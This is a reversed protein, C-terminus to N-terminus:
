GVSGPPTSGDRMAGAPGGSERLFAPPTGCLRWGADDLREVLGADQLAGLGSTVSPRQAGVLQALERHTLPLPLLLGDGSVRGWREALLWLVGLLRDEMRSRHAISQMALVRAVRRESRRGLTLAMTPWRVTAALVASGLWALRVPALARWSVARAVFTVADEGLPLLVDGAGLLEASPRGAVTMERLLLGDLVLAGYHEGDHIPSWRGLPLHEVAAVAAARAVARDADGLGTGLDPDEDLLNVLPALVASLSHRRPGLAASPREIAGQRTTRSVPLTARM